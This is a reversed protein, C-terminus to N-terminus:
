SGEKENKENKLFISAVSVGIVGGIFGFIFMLLIVLIGDMQLFNPTYGTLIRFLSGGFFHSMNALGGWVGGVMVGYGSKLTSVPLTDILFGILTYHIVAMGVGGAVGMSGMIYGSMLGVASTSGYGGLLHKDSLIKPLIFMPIIWIGDHGPLHLGPTRTLMKFMAITASFTLIIIAQRFITEPTISFYEKTIEEFAPLTEEQIPESELECELKEM